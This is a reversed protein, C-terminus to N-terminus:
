HTNSHLEQEQLSHSHTFHKSLKSIKSKMSPTTPITNIAVLWRRTTVITRGCAFPEHYQGPHDAGTHDVVPDCRDTIVSIDIVIIVNLAVDYTLYLRNCITQKHGGFLGHTVSFNM